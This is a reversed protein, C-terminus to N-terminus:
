YPISQLPLSNGKCPFLTPEIGVDGVMKNIRSTPTAALMMSQTEIPSSEFEESGEM